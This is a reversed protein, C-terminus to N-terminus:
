SARVQMERSDSSTLAHLVRTGGAAIFVFATVPVAAFAILASFIPLLAGLVSSLTASALLSVFFGIGGAGILLLPIAWLGRREDDFAVGWTALSACLALVAAAIQLVLPDAQVWVDTVVGVGNVMTTGGGVGFM